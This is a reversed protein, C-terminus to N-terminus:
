KLKEKLYKKMDYETYLYDDGYNEFSMIYSLYIRDKENDTNSHKDIDKILINYVKESDVIENIFSMKYGYTKTLDYNLHNGLTVFNKIFEFILNSNKLYEDILSNALKEDLVKLLFYYKKYYYVDLNDKNKMFKKLKPLVIKEIEIVQETTLLASQETQTQGKYMRGCQNQLSRLIEVKILSLEDTKFVSKLFEFVNFKNKYKGCFNIVIKDCLSICDRYFILGTNEEPKIINNLELIWDVIKKAREFELKEMLYYNIYPAFDGFQNNENLKIIFEQFVKKDFITLCNEIDINTYLEKSNNFNFYKEINDKVHIFGRIKSEQWKNITYASYPYIDAIKPFLFKLSEKVFIYNNDSMETKEVSLFNDILEKLEKKEDNSNSFNYSFTGTIVDKNAYIFNYINPYKIELITLIIFDHFDVNNELAKFKFTFINLFRNVERITNFQNLFRTNLLDSDRYHLTERSNETLTNLKELLLRHISIHSAEPVNLPVQIIKELYSEAFNAQSKKLASTVVNKDFSLVYIINDFNALLKVLQFIQVIEDDNLRDIDDIIVVIKTKSKRLTKIIKNKIQSLSKKYSLNELTEGYQKILPALVKAYIHTFPNYIGLTIIKALMKFFHASKTFVENYNLLKLQQYLEKFFAQILEDQEKFNWPNFKIVTIKETKLKSEVLNLISTKGSGWAGYLGITLSEMDKYNIIGNVLSNVFSERGIKDEEIKDIPKDVNFKEM